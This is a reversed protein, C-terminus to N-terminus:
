LGRPHHTKQYAAFAACRTHLYCRRHNCQEIRQCVSSRPDDPNYTKQPPTQIHELDSEVFGFGRQLLRHMRLYKRLTDTKLHLRESAEVLGVQDVLQGVRDWNESSYLEYIRAPGNRTRKFQSICQQTTTEM